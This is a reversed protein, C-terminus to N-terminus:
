SILRVPAMARALAQDEESLSDEMLLRAALASLGPAAQVGYGGQGALWFFGESRPDFGVVFSRDPAFTRLGAWARNVKSVTLEAVQQIRDVAEAIELEEPQADCPESPTENAPSLLLQGADPKFYFQEAIDIALPWTGCDLGPPADVVLATRRLPAFGLPGLGALGALEDVWAGAANVVIGAEFQRGDACTVRWGSPVKQLQSVRCDAELRGGSHRFQRLFGQLIADVDLDGGTSDLLGAELTEPRIIPVYEKVQAPTLSQLRPTEALQKEAVAHQHGQVLFLAPRQRM